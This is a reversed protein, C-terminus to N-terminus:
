IFVDFEPNSQAISFFGLCNILANIISVSFATLSKSMRICLVKLYRVVLFILCIASVFVHLVTCLLCWHLRFCIFVRGSCFLRVIAFATLPLVMTM